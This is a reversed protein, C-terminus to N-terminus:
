EGREDLAQRIAEAMPRQLLPKMLFGRIGMDRAQKESMRESFGTCLIIPVSPKVRLIEGALEDGTIGPMTMDTIVLDFRDPEERFLNLAEQANTSTVVEYGLRELMQRGINVLASEDDVFLIRENGSVPTEDPDPAQSERQESVPLYVEFVSGQGLESNVKIIGDLSNIIGHVMSLGMGTGEGTKKTTFFPEFIREMIEPQMGGGTDSVALRLFSGPKIRPNDGTFATDDLEVMSVEIGLVGGHQRMAYGANTCLNMLIQHIEMPSAMVPKLNWDIQQSIEITTPLTARLLKLVETIIPVLDLPMREQEAQRSFALIQRVLDRARQGAKLIEGINDYLLTGPEMESLAIESFGIVASLINNFDHAIGGALTGLAEMKQAQLHHAELRKKEEEIQKRQSIDRTVGIVGAPRGAEDVMFAVTIEAWIRSGDKCVHELEMTQPERLAAEVRESLVKGAIMLSDQTVVSAVNKSLFEEPTYGLIREVSPTVFTFNFAEDITWIMDTVQETIIRLREESVRLAAEVEKRAQIELEAQLMKQELKRVLRENYLKLVEEEEAQEPKSASEPRAAAATVDNVAKLFVDPECPKLIFRDAGIKLALEEDQPGTYTATYIIFPIRRTAEDEKVKRCLQFGDMVPMLIDSIILEIGDIKLKELAEAGNAASQVDHGSGKLLTELLYLNEKHDDVILIKM